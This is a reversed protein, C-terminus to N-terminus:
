LAMKRRGGDTVPTCGQGESWAGTPRTGSVLHAEQVAQASMWAYHGSRGWAGLEQWM